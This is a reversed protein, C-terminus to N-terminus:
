RLHQRAPDWGRGVVHIDMGQHIILNHRDKSVNSGGRTRHGIQGLTGLTLDSGVSKPRTASARSARGGYRRRGHLANGDPDTLLTDTIGVGDVSKWEAAPRRRRKM